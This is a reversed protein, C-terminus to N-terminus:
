KGYGPALAYSGNRFSNSANMVVDSTPYGNHNTGTYTCTCFIGPFPKGSDLIKKVDDAKSSGSVEVANTIMNITDSGAAVWWLTTDDLRVGAATVQDVFKQTREPLKGSGDFSTPRYGVNYVKNWNEPKALLPKVSGAGMAPHGIFPVDWGIESRANMLRSNLGASDTWVVMAEAGSNMAKRMEATVDTQNAEVLGKYTITAGLAKLSQESLNVSMTGYGTADGIVGVKKVKLVNLVYNHAAETWQLNAPLMRYAYPFKTTDILTDVVGYVFSPIKSRAIVPTTALGEGSNTPGITFEVKDNNIMELAANVAKTPDGQTDRTIVEIKRGKVGGAKNIQDVAFKIGRDFGIGPTSNPGTLAVLWGIKVPPASSQTWAPPSGLIVLGCAVLAAIVFGIRMKAM